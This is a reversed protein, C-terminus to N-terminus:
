KECRMLNVNIQTRAGSNPDTVSQMDHIEDPQTPDTSGQVLVAPFSHASEFPKTGGTRASNDRCQIAKGQPQGVYQQGTNESVDTATGQTQYQTSTNLQISYHRTDGTPSSTVFVKTDGEGQGSETINNTIDSSEPGCINSGSQHTMNLDKRNLDASWLAASEGSFTGSSVTTSGGGSLTLVANEVYDHAETHGNAQHITNLTRHYTITGGWGQKCPVWDQV